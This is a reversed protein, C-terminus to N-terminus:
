APDAGGETTGPTIIHRGLIVQAWPHYLNRHQPKLRSKGNPNFIFIAALLMRIDIIGVVGYPLLVM